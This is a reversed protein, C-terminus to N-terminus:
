TYNQLVNCEMEIIKSRDVYGIFVVRKNAAKFKGSPIGSNVKTHLFEENSKQGNLKESKRKKWKQARKVMFQFFSGTFGVAVTNM